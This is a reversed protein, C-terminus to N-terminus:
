FDPNKVKAAPLGVQYIKDISAVDGVKDYWLLDDIAKEVVDLRHDLADFREQTADGQTTEAAQRAFAVTSVVTAMVLPLVLRWLVNKPMM